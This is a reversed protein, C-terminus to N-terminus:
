VAEVTVIEDAKTPFDDIDIFELSQFAYRKVKKGVRCSVAGAADQMHAHVPYSGSNNLHKAVGLPITYQQGDVLDYRSVPEGKYKKYNFSMSAGPVEFFRFIGKVMEKDKEKLYNLNKSKEEKVNIKKQM